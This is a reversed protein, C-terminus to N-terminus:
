MGPVKKSVTNFMGAIFAAASQQTRTIPTAFIMIEEEEISAIDLNLRRGYMNFMYEGLYIHQLYGNGTLQGLNNLLKVFNLVNKSM